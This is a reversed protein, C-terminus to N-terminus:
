ETPRGRIRWWINSTLGELKTRYYSKEFQMYCYIAAREGMGSGRYTLTAGNKELYERLVDNVHARIVMERGRSVEPKLGVFFSADLCSSETDKELVLCSEQDVVVIYNSSKYTRNLERRVGEALGLSSYLSIPTSKKKQKKMKVVGYHIIFLVYIFYIILIKLMIVFNIFM